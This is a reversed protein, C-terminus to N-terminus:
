KKSRFYKLVYETAGAGGNIYTLALKKIKQKASDNNIFFFIKEIFDDSGEIPFAVELKELDVAENFKLYNKNGFFVPVGFVVAELINHLGKGFGGGVYAFDAYQYISSLYGVADVIMIQNNPNINESFLSATLSTKLNLIEDKNIDHPVLIVKVDPFLKIFVLLVELDAPWFSGAVLTAKGQIFREIKEIKPVNSANQRVRDFRTDGSVTFDKISISTLLDASITNQLFFHDFNKLIKKFFSGYWKFYVQEKRFTVSVGILLAGSKKISSIFNPWFEYKVFVVIQPKFIDIFNKANKPTDIPLYMVKDVQDYEKRVRYGSPSFFTLLIFYSPYEKRFAEIVPRGQEFEGLSACHFWAVPEGIPKDQYYKLVDSSIKQGFYFEELKSFFVSLYPLFWDIVRILGNYFVATTTAIISM